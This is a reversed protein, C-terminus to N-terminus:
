NLARHEHHATVDLGNFITRSTVDDTEDANVLEQELASSEGGRLGCVVHPDHLEGHGRNHPDSDLDLVSSIQGLEDFTELTQRLRVGTDLSPNSLGTLVNDSTGTLQVQFNAQFYARM